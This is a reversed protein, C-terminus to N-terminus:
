QDVERLMEIKKQVDLGNNKTVDMDTEVFISKKSHVPKVMVNNRKRLM